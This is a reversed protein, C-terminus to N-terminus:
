RYLPDFRGDTFSCALACACGLHHLSIGLPEALRLACRGQHLRYQWEEDLEDGARQFARYAQQTTQLRDPPAAPGQEQQGPQQRPSSAPSSDDGAATESGPDTGANAADADAGSSSGPSTADPMDADVDAGQQPESSAECICRQSYWPFVKKGMELLLNGAQVLSAGATPLSATAPVWVEAAQRSM